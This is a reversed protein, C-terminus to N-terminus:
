PGSKAPAGTKKGKAEYASRYSERYGGSMIEKNAAEVEPSFAAPRDGGGGGCGALLLAALALCSRLRGPVRAAREKGPM